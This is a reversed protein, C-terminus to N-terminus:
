YARKSMTTNMSQVVTSPQGRTPIQILPKRAKKDTTSGLFKINMHKDRALRDRQKQAQNM